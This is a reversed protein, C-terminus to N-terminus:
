KKIEEAKIMARIDLKSTRERLNATFKGFNIESMVERISIKNIDIVIKAQKTLASFSAQLVGNLSFVKKTM